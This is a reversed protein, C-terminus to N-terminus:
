IKKKKISQYNNEKQNPQESQWLTNLNNQNSRAAVWLSKIDNPAIIKEAPILTVGKSLMFGEKKMVARVVDNTPPVNAHSNISLMSCCMSVIIAIKKM